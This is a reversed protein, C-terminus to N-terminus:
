VVLQTLVRLVLFSVPLAVVPCTIVTSVLLAPAPSVSLLLTLTM